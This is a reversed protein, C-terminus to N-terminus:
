RFQRTAYTELVFLPDNWYDLGELSAGSLLLFHRSVLFIAMIAFAVMVMALVETAATNLVSAYRVTATTTAVALPFVCALCRFM